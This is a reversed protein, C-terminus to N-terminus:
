RDIQRDTQRGTERKRKRNREGHTHRREGIMAGNRVSSCARSESALCLLDKVTTQLTREATPIATAKENYEQIRTRVPNKKEIRVNDQV